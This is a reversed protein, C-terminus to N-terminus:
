VRAKFSPSLGIQTGTEFKVEVSLVQGRPQVKRVESKIVTPPIAGIPADDAGEKGLATITYPLFDIESLPVEQESEV